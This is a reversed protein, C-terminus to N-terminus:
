AHPPPNSDPFTKVLWPEVQEWADEPTLAELSARPNITRPLRRKGVNHATWVPFGKMPKRVVLTKPGVPGNRKEDTPGFIGITPVGESAAIHMLGSDNCLCLSCMSLMAATRNLPLPTVVHSPMRMHKAVIDKIHEEEPGGFIFADANLYYCLRDALQAFRKPDWQKADMGREISSGPHVAIRIKHQSASQFYYSGWQHDPQSYLVPFVHADTKLDRKLFLGAIAYNQQLDHLEPNVKLKNTNLFSLTRIGFKRYKFAYRRGIGAVFPLFSYQWTNSPFFNISVDFKKRRLYVIAGAKRFFGRLTHPDFVEVGDWLSDNGALQAIGERLALLHLQAHPM